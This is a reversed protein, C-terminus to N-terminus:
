GTIHLLPYASGWHAFILNTPTGCLSFQIGNVSELGNIPSFHGNMPDMPGKTLLVGKIPCIIGSLLIVYFFILIKVRLSGVFPDSLRLRHRIEEIPSREHPFEHGILPAYNYSETLPLNLDTPPYINDALRIINERQRFITFHVFFHIPLFRDTQPLINENQPVSDRM